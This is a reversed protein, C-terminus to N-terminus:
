KRPRVKKKGKSKIKKKPLYVCFLNKILEFLLLKKLYKFNMCCDRVNIYPKM